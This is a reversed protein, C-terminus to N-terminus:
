KIEKTAEAMIRDWEADDYDFTHGNENLIKTIWVIHQCLAKSNIKATSIKKDGDVAYDLNMLKFIEKLEQMDTYDEHKYFTLTGGDQDSKWERFSVQRLKHYAENLLAYYFRNFNSTIM